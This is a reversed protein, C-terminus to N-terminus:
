FDREKECDYSLRFVCVCHMIKSKCQRLIDNVRIIMVYLRGNTQKSIM